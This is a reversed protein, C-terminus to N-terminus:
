RKDNGLTLWRQEDPDHLQAVPTQNQVHGLEQTENNLDTKRQPAHTSACANSAKTNNNRKRKCPEFTDGVARRATGAKARGPKNM